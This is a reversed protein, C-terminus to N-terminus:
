QQCMSLFLDPLTTQYEYPRENDGSAQRGGKPPYPLSAGKIEEQSLLFNTRNHPGLANASCGRPTLGEDSPGGQPYGVGCVGRLKGRPSSDATDVRVKVISRITMHVQLPTIHQPPTWGGEAV